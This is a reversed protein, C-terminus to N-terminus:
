PRGGERSEPRGLRQILLMVLGWLSGLGYSLHLAAFVLPMLGLYRIDRERWAVQVSAALNVLGYTGAIALLLWGGGAGMLALGGSVGLSLVFALPALHRWAVPMGMAYRFPLIAWVGNTWNHKLFSKLDSRAYYYSTIAPVLLSRKGARKLRLSFEMDQGRPLNENFYGLEQIVEKRCCLFPVTDVELPAASKQILRYYASGIGFRHGLSKTIAQAVLTPRRPLIEWRGGVNDAGHRRLAEVCKAIYRGEYVTHADMRMIIDGRAARVGANLAAPTIKRPNDVLHIIPYRQAYNGIIERTCDHSQGDVVLVELRDRPYDNALISELCMGIFNEENRCPIIISVFPREPGELQLAEQGVETEQV